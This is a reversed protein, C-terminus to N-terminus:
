HKETRNGKLVSLILKGNIITFLILVFFSFPQISFGTASTHNLRFVFTYFQVTPLFAVLNFTGILLSVGTIFVSAVSKRFLACLLSISVLALGAYQKMGFVLPTTGIIYFSYLLTCVLIGLPIFIIQKKM